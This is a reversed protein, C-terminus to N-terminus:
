TAEGHERIGVAIGALACRSGRAIARANLYVAGVLFVVAVSFLQTQHTAIFGQLRWASAGILIPFLSAVFSLAIPLLPSCRLM